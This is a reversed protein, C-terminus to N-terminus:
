WVFGCSYPVAAPQKQKDQKEFRNQSKNRYNLIYIHANFMWLASYQKTYEMKDTWFSSMFLPTTLAVLLAKLHLHEVKFEICISTSQTRHYCCIRVLNKVLM